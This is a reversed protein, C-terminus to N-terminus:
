RLLIASRWENCVIRSQSSHQLGITRINKSRIPFSLISRIQIDRRTFNCFLYSLTQGKSVRQQRRIIQSVKTLDNASISRIGPLLLIWSAFATRKRGHLYSLPNAMVARLWVFAHSPQLVFLLILKGHRVIVRGNYGLLSLCSIVIQIFANKLKPRQCM